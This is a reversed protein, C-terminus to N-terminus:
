NYSSHCSIELLTTHTVLLPESWGAYVRLRILAKAHRMNNLIEQICINLGIFSEKAQMGKLKRLKTLILEWFNRFIRLHFMNADSQCYLSMEQCGLGGSLLTYEYIIKKNRLWFM